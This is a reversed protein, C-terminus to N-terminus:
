MSDGTSCGDRLTVNHVMSGDERVQVDRRATDVAAVFALADALTRGQALWMRARHRLMEVDRDSEANDIM